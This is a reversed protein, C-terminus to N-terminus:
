IPDAPKPHISLSCVDDQPTYNRKKTASRPTPTDKFPLRTGKGEICAGCQHKSYPLKM